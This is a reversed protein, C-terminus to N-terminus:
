SPICETLTLEQELASKAEDRLRKADELSKRWGIYRQVNNLKFKVLYSQRTEYWYIGYLEGDHRHTNRANESVTCWRLNELRNDTRDRNIHDVYPKNDTNSLFCEALLCHLYKKVYRGEKRLKFSYYGNPDLYPKLIRGGFGRVLGTNSVEYPLIDNVPKWAEESM